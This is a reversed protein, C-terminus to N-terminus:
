SSFSPEPTLGDHWTIDVEAEKLLELAAKFQDGWEAESLDPTQAVLRTIGAQVLARACDMCPFWTLYMTCGQLPTGIRAARFIANREAHETWLYKAPRDHRNDAEDDIREPFGNYGMARVNRNADVVVCGIKRSRDKSWQGIYRALDLFRQDWGILM